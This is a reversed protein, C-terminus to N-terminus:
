DFSAVRNRRLGLRRVDKDNATAPMGNAGHVGLVQCDAPMKSRVARIAEAQTPYMAVYIRSDNAPDESKGILVQVLFPQAKASM